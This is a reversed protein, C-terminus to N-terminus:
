PKEGDPGQNRSICARAMCEKSSTCFKGADPSPLYCFYRDGPRMPGGSGAWMGARAECQQQSLDFNADKFPEPRAVNWSRQGSASAAVMAFLCSAISRRINM